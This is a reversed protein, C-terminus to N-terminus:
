LLNEVDPNTQSRALPFFPYQQGFTYDFYLGLLLVKTNFLCNTCDEGSKRLPTEFLSMSIASALSFAVTEECFWLFFEFIQPVISSSKQTKTRKEICPLM